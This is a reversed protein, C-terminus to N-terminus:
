PQLSREAAANWGSNLSHVTNDGIRLRCYWCQKTTQHRIVKFLSNCNLIFFVFSLKEKFNILTYVLYFESHPALDYYLQWQLLYSIILHVYKSVM